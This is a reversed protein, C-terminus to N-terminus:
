LTLQLRLPWPLSPDPRAVMAPATAGAYTNDVYWVLPAGVTITVTAGNTLVPVTVADNRLTYTFTDTGTFGVPPLYTFSGDANVLVTGGQASTAQFSQLSKTDPATAPNIDNAFLNAGVTVAPSTTAVGIALLTNGVTTYSDNIAIPSAHVSGAILTTNPDLTANYALNLADDAPSVAGNNNITALYTIADGPNVKGNADVDPFSDTLTATIAAANPANPQQQMSNKIISNKIIASKSAAAQAEHTERAKAARNAKNASVAVGLLAAVAVFSVLTVLLLRKTLVPLLLSRTIRQVSLPLTPTSKM